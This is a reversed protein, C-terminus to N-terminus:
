RHGEEALADRVAAEIDAHSRRRLGEPGVAYARPTGSPHPVEVRVSRTNIKVVTGYRGAMLCYVRDGIALEDVTAYKAARHHEGQIVKKRADRRDLVAGAIAARADASLGPTQQDITGAEFAAVVAARWDRKCDASAQWEAGHTAEYRARQRGSLRAFQYPSIEAVHPQKVGMAAQYQSATYRWPEAVAEDRTIRHPRTETEM